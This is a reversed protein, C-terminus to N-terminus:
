VLFLEYLVEIWIILGSAETAVEGVKGVLISIDVM